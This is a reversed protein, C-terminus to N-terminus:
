QFAARLRGVASGLPDPFPARLPDTGSPRPNRLRRFLMYAVMAAYFVLGLMTAIALIAVGSTGTPSSPVSPLDILDVAYFKDAQLTMLTEEQAMLIQQLSQRLYVEQTADIQQKLYAVRNITRALQDERVIDDAARLTWSLLNLALARNKAKVGISFVQSRLDLPSKGPVLSITTATQLMKALTTADPPAWPRMGLMAKVGAKLASLPGHPPTWTHTRENWGRIM